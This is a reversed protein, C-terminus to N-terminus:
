PWREKAPSLKTACNGGMSQGVLPLNFLRDAVPNAMVVLGEENLLLV